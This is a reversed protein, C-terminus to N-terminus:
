KLEIKFPIEEPPLCQSDDCAMFEVTGSLSTKVVPKKVKVVQVFTVTGDYSWVDVGFENSHEKHLKGVETTKGGLLVLLNKAFTVKTASPGGDPTSHSYIHWGKEVKATMSVKYMGVKRKLPVASFSWKVPKLIQAQITVSLLLLGIILSIKRM